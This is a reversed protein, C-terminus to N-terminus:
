ALVLNNKEIIAIIEERSKETIEAIQEPSYGKQYMRLIIRAEGIAEGETRGEERIGQSLNCMASVDERIRDGSPIHYKTEKTYLFFYYRSM